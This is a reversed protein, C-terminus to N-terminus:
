KKIKIREESNEVCEQDENNKDYFKVYLEYDGNEINEETKFQFSFSKRENADLTIEKKLNEKDEAIKIEEDNQVFILEIKYDKQNDNKNQVRVEIEIEESNQWTWETPNQKEMDDVSIIRLKDEGVIGDDCFEFATAQALTAILLLLFITLMGRKM